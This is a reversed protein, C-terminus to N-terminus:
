GGLLARMVGFGAILGLAGFALAALLFPTGRSDPDRRYAVAYWVRAGIWVSGCVAAIGDGVFAAAIWLCPLVMLTWEITNTQVRCAREFEPHGTMAPARIDHRKRAVGVAAAVGFLLLVIFLTTLATLPLNAM